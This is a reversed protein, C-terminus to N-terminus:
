NLGALRGLYGKDKIVIRHRELSIAGSDELNKLSRGVVERATGAMAAMEYQTLRQYGEPGPTANQLLIKAVRGTVNKFSLDEVLTLLLRGQESIIELANRVVRWNKEMVPLLDKKNIWYIVTNGLAQASYPCPGGGFVTLDNFSEGPRAIKIIQEKGESSTKYIKVVGTSVFHLSEQSDGESVITQGKIFSKQTFLAPLVALKDNEVGAFYRLRGINEVTINM